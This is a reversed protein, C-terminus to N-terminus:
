VKRGVAFIRDNRIEGDLPSRQEIFDLHFGAQSFLSIIEDKTFLAFYIEAEIGLLQSQYGEATGAKVAVLLRGRQKLIRRFEDFIGGVDNKPTHIISYYSVIGDFSGDEFPMRGINGCVLGMRPNYRRAMEVCRNSIDLGVVRLGKESVYRGIHASPGGGADCILAGKRFHAAFSSLLRRDYEKERMENHFLDHYRQAALDYARRTKANVSELSEPSKAVHLAARETIRIMFSNPCPPLGSAPDRSGAKRTWPRASL